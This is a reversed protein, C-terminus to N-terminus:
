EYVAEIRRQQLLRLRQPEATGLALLSRGLDNATWGEGVPRTELGRQPRSYTTSPGHSEKLTTFGRCHSRSQASACRYLQHATPHKGSPFRCQLLLLMARHASAPTSSSEHLSRIPPAGLQLMRLSLSLMCGRLPGVATSSCDTASARGAWYRGVKKKQFQRDVTKASERAAPLSTPRAHIISDPPSKRSSHLVVCGDGALPLCFYGLDSSLLRWCSM